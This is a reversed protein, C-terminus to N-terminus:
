IFAMQMTVTIQFQTIIEKDPFHRLEIKFSVLDVDHGIFKPLPLAQYEIQATVAATRQFCEQTQQAIEEIVINLDTVEFATFILLGGYRLGSATVRERSLQHYQDIAVRTRGSFEKCPDHRHFLAAYHNAIKGCPRHHYCSVEVVLDSKIHNSVIPHANSLGVQDHGVALAQLM